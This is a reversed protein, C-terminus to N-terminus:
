FFSRWERSFYRINTGCVNRKLALSGDPKKIKCTVARESGKREMRIEETWAGENKKDSERETLEQDGERARNQDIKMVIGRKTNRGEHTHIWGWKEEHGRRVRKGAIEWLTPLKCIAWLSLSYGNPHTRFALLLMMDPVNLVNSTSSNTNM